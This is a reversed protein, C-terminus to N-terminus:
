NFLRSFDDLHRIGQSAIEGLVINPLFEIVNTLKWRLDSIAGKYNVGESHSFHYTLPSLLEVSGIRVPM